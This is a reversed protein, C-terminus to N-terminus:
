MNTGAEAALAQQVRAHQAKIFAVLDAKATKFAEGPNPKYLSRPFAEGSLERNGLVHPAVRAMLENIRPLVTTLSFAGAPSVLWQVHALYAQRYVADDLLYRILPWQSTVEDRMISGRRPDDMLALNHDWTLWTLVGNLNYLYYNHPMVGYSDWHGIVSSTALFRLFARVDFVSELNARWEAPKRRRFPGHLIALVRQVDSYDQKNKNNKKVFDAPKFREWTTHLPKYLNAKGLASDNRFVRSLMVDDPDELMTYLGFYTSGEPEGLDVELRTLVAQATPVGAAEFIERALIEELNASSYACFSACHRV